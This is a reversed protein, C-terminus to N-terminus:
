TNMNRRTEKEMYMQRDAERFAEVLNEPLEVTAYGLSVSLRCRGVVPEAEAVACRVRQLAMEVQEVGVGPLLVAFEDGGVRAVIDESRFSEELIQAARRILEDGAAHGVTDNCRKLGDIDAVVISIPAQRGHAFRDLESDFYARNYLGTMADHTSARQLDASKMDVHQIMANFTGALLAIEDNSRSIFLREEGQKSAINRVHDAFKVLSGTFGGMILRVVIVLLITGTVALMVLYKQLSWIPEYAEAVPYNAGIIWDAAKFARFSTLSHLGAANVNEGSGEFGQLAADFLKNTGPAEPNQMIRSKNPHMIMVRNRTFIYLYGTKAIRTRSLSGLFDDQLLNVRGGLFAIVKGGRDRVPATIM